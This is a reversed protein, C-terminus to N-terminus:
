MYPRHVMWKDKCWIVFESTVTNMYGSEYIKLTIIEENSHAMNSLPLVHLHVKFTHFVCSEEVM